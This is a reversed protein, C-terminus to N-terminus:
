KPVGGDVGISALFAQQQAQQEAHTLPSRGMGPPAAATATQPPPAPPDLSLGGLGSLLSPGGLLASSGMAPAPASGLSGMPAPPALSSFPTSGSGLGGWGPLEFGSSGSAGSFLSDVNSSAGSDWLPQQSSAGQAWGAAAPAVPAPPQPQAPLSAFSGMRPPPPARMAEAQVQQM